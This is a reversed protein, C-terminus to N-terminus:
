KINYKIHFKVISGAAVAYYGEVQKGECVVYTRSGGHLDNKLARHILWENLSM